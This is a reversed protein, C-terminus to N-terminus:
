VYLFSLGIGNVEAWVGGIDFTMQRRLETKGWGFLGTNANVVWDTKFTAANAFEGNNATKYFSSEETNGYDLRVWIKSGTFEAKTINGVGKISAKETNIVVSHM